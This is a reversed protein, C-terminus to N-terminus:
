SRVEEFITGEAKQPRYLPHAMCFTIGKLLEQKDWRPPKAGEAIPMWMLYITFAQNERKIKHFVNMSDIPKFGLSEMQWKMFWPSWHNELAVTAFGDAEKESKIMDELLKKGFDHGKARRLVWICMMVVTDDGIIPYSSAAAPAYEIQGVVDGNFILLKM